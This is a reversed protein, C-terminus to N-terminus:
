IIERMLISCNENESLIDLNKQSSHIKPTARIKSFVRTFDHCKIQVQSACLLQFFTYLDEIFSVESKREKSIFKDNLDYFSLVEEALHNRLDARIKPSFQCFFNSLDIMSLKNSILFVLGSEKVNM